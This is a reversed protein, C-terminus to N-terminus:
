GTRVWLESFIDDSRFVWGFPGSRVSDVTGPEPDVLVARPLYRGCRAENYYVNLRELHLDRDGHSTGASDITQEDSIVEWFKTHIQNGCRRTQSLVIERM